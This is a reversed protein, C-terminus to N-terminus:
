RIRLGSSEPSGALLRPTQTRGQSVAQGSVSTRVADFLNEFTEPKPDAADLNALLAETLLGHGREVSVGAGEGPAAALIVASRGSGAESATWEGSLAAGGPGAATRGGSGSFGADIVAVAGGAGLADLREYLRPLSYATQELLSADGDWPLLYATGTKPDVAGDGAFYFFFKSNKGANAPLWRELYRELGARGARQGSLLLVNRSPWGL